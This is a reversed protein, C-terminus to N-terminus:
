GAKTAIGGGSSGFEAPEYMNGYPLGVKHVAEGRGGTGGHGGGSAGGSTGPGLGPNARGHVGQSTGHKLQYGRGALNIIGKANVSINQAKVNLNSSELRGGGEIHLLTVSLNMGRHTIPDSLMYLIGGYQIRITGFIFDNEQQQTGTRSEEYLHLAGGHHLILKPIFSIMGQIHIAVGHVTTRNALGLYGGRYVRVSFPLDIKDRILDMTQNNAIHITCTRDGIMDRFFLSAARNYPETRVALHTGGYMQLEEFNYSQNGAFAHEGSSPLLWASGPLLSM